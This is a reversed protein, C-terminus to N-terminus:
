CGTVSFDFQLNALLVDVQTPEPKSHSDESDVSLAFILEQLRNSALLLQQFSQEKKPSTKTQQLLEIVPDVNIKLQTSM